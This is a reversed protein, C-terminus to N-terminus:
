YSNIAVTYYGLDPCFTSYILLYLFQLLYVCYFSVLCYGIFVFESIRGVSIHKIFPTSLIPYHSPGLLCCLLFIPMRTSLASCFQKIGLANINIIGYIMINMLTDKASTYLSLKILVYVKCNRLCSGCSQEWFQITRQFHSSTVGSSPTTRFAILHIRVLRGRCEVLYNRNLSFYFRTVIKGFVM